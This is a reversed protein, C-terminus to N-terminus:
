HTEILFLISAMPVWHILFFNQSKPYVVLLSKKYPLQRGLSWYIHYFRQGEFKFLTHACKGDQKEVSGRFRSKKPMSRLMTKSYTIESICWSHTNDKIQFHQLNLNFKLFTSFFQSFTKRKQSLQRQIRHALNDRDLLSYKDDANLTNPFLKSIKCIVLLSKKYSLQRGLSWYIHYLLHGDFKFLTQACKGPQKEVSARFCSKQPMSRVMNQPTRLKPFVDAILTM